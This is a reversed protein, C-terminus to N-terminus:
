MGGQRRVGRRVRREGRKVDRSACREAMAVRLDSASESREMESLMDRLRAISSSSSFIASRSSFFRFFSSSSRLFFLSPLPTLASFFTSVLPIFFILLKKVTFGLAFYCNLHLHPPNFHSLIADTYRLPNAHCKYSILTTKPGHSKLMAPIATIIMMMVVSTYITSDRARAACAMVSFENRKAVYSQFCSCPRLWAESGNRSKSELAPPTTFFLFVSGLGINICM